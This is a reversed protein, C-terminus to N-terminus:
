MVSWLKKLEVGESTQMVHPYSSRYTDVWCVTVEDTAEFVFNYEIFGGRGCLRGSDRRTVSSLLSM